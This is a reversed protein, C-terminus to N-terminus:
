FCVCPLPAELLFLLLPDVFVAAAVGECNISAGFTALDKWVMFYKIHVSILSIKALLFIFLQFDL